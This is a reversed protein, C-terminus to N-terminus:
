PGADSFLAGFTAGLTILSWLAAFTAAGWFGGDLRLPVVDSVVDVRRSAYKEEIQEQETKEPEDVEETVRQRTVMLTGCFRCVDEDGKRAAGCNPCEDLLTETVIRKRM